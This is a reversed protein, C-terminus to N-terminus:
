ESQTRLSRSSGIAGVRRCSNRQSDIEEVALMAEAIRGECACEMKYNIHSLIDASRQDFRM